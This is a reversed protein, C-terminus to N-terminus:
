AAGKVQRYYEGRLALLWQGVQDAAVLGADDMALPKIELRFEYYDAATFAYRYRYAALPTEVEFELVDGHWSGRLPAFRPVPLMTDFWFLAYTGAAADWAYVAHARLVVDGEREEAYDCTLIQGDLHTRAQARGIAHGGKPDWPTPQLWEEGLWTGRMADNLRTQEPAVADSQM